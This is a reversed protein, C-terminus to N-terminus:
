FEAVINTASTGTALVQTARVQLYTGSPVASYKVTTGKVTILNV